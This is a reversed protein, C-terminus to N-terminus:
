RLRQTWFVLSPKRTEPDYEVKKEGDGLLFLEYRPPPLDASVDIKTGVNGHVRPDRVCLYGAKYSAHGLLEGGKKKPTTLGEYAM